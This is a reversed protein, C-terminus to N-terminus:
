EEADLALMGVAWEFTQASKVRCTRCGCVEAARLSSSVREQVAERVVAAAQAIVANDLKQGDLTNQM